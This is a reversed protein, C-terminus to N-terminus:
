EKERKVTRRQEIRATAERNQECVCDYVMVAMVALLKTYMYPSYVIFVHVTLRSICLLAIRIRTICMTYM